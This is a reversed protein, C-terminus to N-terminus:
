PLNERFVVEVRMPDPLNGPNRGERLDRFLAACKAITDEASQTIVADM